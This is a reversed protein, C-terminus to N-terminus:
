QDDDEPDSARFALPALMLVLVVFAAVAFLGAALDPWPDTWNGHTM